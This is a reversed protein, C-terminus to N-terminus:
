DEGDLTAEIRDIVKRQRASLLTQAGYKDLRDVLDMVFRHQFDSLLGIHEFARSCLRDVRNFDDGLPTSDTSM